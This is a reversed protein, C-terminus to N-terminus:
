AKVEREAGKEDLHIVWLSGCEKCKATADGYPYDEPLREVLELKGDCSSCKQNIAVKDLDSIQQLGQWGRLFAHRVGCELCEFAINHLEDSGTLDTDKVDMGLHISFEDCGCVPCVMRTM